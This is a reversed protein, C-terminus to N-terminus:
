AICDPLNIPLRRPRNFTLKGNIFFQIVGNVLLRKMSNANVAAADAVSCSNLGFFNETQSCCFQENSVFFHFVTIAGSSDLNTIFPLLSVVSM